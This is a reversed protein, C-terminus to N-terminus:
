ISLNLNLKFSKFKPLAKIGKIAHPTVCVWPNGKHAGLVGNSFLQRSSNLQLIRSQERKGGADICRAKYM